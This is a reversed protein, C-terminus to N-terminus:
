HPPTFRPTPDHMMLSVQSELQLIRLGLDEEAAEGHGNAIPPAPPSPAPPPPVVVPAAAHIPGANIASPPTGLPPPDDLMDYGETENGGQDDSIYPDTDAGEDHTPMPAQVPAQIARVARVARGSPSQMAWQPTPQRMGHRIQRPLHQVPTLEHTPSPPRARRERVESDIVSQRANSFPAQNM